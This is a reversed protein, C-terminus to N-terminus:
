EGGRALADPAGSGRRQGLAAMSDFMSSFSRSVIRNRWGHHFLSTSSSSPATAGGAVGGAGEGPVRSAMKVRGSGSDEGAINEDYKSLTSAGSEFRSAMSLAIGHEDKPFWGRMATIGRSVVAIPPRQLPNRAVKIEKISELSCISAPLAVLRNSSADLVELRKLKGLQRPLAELQNGHVDLSTLSRLECWSNPLVLLCNNSCALQKLAALSGIHELASAFIRNHSLSLVELTRLEGISAPLYQLANSTLTLVRLQQLRGLDLPLVSLQNDHLLLTQLSVLRWLEEPLSELKNAHLDLCRLQRLNRGFAREPLSQIGNEGLSIKLLNSPLRSFAAAPLTGLERGEITLTRSKGFAARVAAAVQQREGSEDCAECFSRAALSVARGTCSPLLLQM